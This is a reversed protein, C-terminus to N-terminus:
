ELPTRGGPSLRHEDMNWKEQWISSLPKWTQQGDLSMKWVMAEVVGTRFCVEKLDSLSDKNYEQTFCQSKLHGLYRNLIHWIKECTIGHFFDWVQFVKGSCKLILNSELLKTFSLFVWCLLSLSFCLFFSLVQTDASIALRM